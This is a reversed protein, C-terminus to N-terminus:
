RKRQIGFESNNLYIDPWVERVLGLTLPAGIFSVLLGLLHALLVVSGAALHKPDIPPRTENSVELTGDAHVRVVRFSPVEAKALALARTLLARCGGDGMLTVLQPRLKEYIRFAASVTTPSPKKGSTEYTLLRTSLKRIPPTARNMQLPRDIHTFADERYRRGGARTRRARPLGGSFRM